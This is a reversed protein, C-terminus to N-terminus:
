LLTQLYAISRGIDALGNPVPNDNEVVLWELGIAKAGEVVAKLDCDGEGLALPHGNKGDKLHVHVLRDKHQTIFKYNDVGACFSWYTDLELFCADLFADIAYSGDAFPEFEHTHNHYYALMGHKQAQANAKRLIACSAATEEPTKHPMGGIGINNCGLVKHYAILEDINDARIGTHTGVVALGLEDLRAKLTAADLDFYGAFEVGDYGLAKVDALVALMDEGTQIHDRVSYLQVALKM